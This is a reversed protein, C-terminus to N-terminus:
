RSTRMALLSECFMLLLAALVLAQWIQGQKNKGGSKSQARGDKGFSFPAEVLAPYRKNLTTPSLHELDGEAPDVGVTFFVRDTRRENSKADVLDFEARYVGAVATDDFNFEVVGGDAVKKARQEAFGRADPRALRIQTPTLDLSMGFGQRVGVNRDGGLRSILHYVMEHMLPLLLVDFQTMFHWGEDATTTVLLVKGKGKRREILAPPAKPGPGFRALVEVSKDDVVEVPYYRGIMKYDFLHKLDSFFGFMPHSFDPVLPLVQKAEYGTEGAPKAALKGPMLGRALLKDNYAEPRIQDGCFILLGGGKEVFKELEILKEEGLFSVNALVILDYGRGAIKERHFETRNLTRRQFITRMRAGDTEPELAHALYHTESEESWGQPDGDVLLVRVKDVVEFAYHRSDDVAIANEGELVVSVVSSGRTPFIESFVLDRSEGPGLRQITKVERREGKVLFQARLGNVAKDGHNKIRAIFQSPLGEGIIKDAADVKEVSVNPLTKKAGVDVFSFQECRAKLQELERDIGQVKRGDIVWGNKMLDTFFFVRRPGSGSTDGELVEAVAELGKAINTAASTPELKSITDLVSQHSTWGQILPEARDSVKIVSLRGRNNLSEVLKSAQNVATEFHTAGEGSKAQMSYSADIVLVVHGERDTVQGMWSFWFRVVPRAFAMVILIVILVRLLLLLLNELLLRRRQKKFARLLYEMAAWEHRKYTQRFILHILLPVGAIPLAWLFFPQLFGM